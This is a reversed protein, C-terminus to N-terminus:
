GGSLAQMVYIESAETVPDSLSDRDKLPQNDVFIAMHKRVRGHEDVVYGQLTKNQAFVQQLVEQVTSGGVVAEDCEVHQKLNSTFVIRAM